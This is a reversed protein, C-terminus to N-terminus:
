YNFSRKKRQYFCNTMQRDYIASFITKFIENPTKKIVNKFVTIERYTLLYKKM